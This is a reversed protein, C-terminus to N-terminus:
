VYDLQCVLNTKIFLFVATMKSKEPSIYSSIDCFYLVEIEEIECLFWLNCVYLGVYRPFWHLNM